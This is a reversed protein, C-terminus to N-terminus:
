ERRRARASERTAKEEDRWACDSGSSPSIGREMASISAQPLLNGTLDALREAVQTQTM